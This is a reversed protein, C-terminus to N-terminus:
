GIDYAPGGLIDVLSENTEEGWQSRSALLWGGAEYDRGCTDCTNTFGDLCVVDGCVCEGTASERWNHIHERVEPAGYFEASQGTIDAYSAAASQGMELLNGDKDCDFAYGNGPYEGLRQFFLTHSVKEHEVAPRINILKSM